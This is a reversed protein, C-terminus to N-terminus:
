GSMAGIVTIVSPTLLSSALRCMWLAVPGSMAGIVTIVSPTLGMSWPAMGYFTLCGVYHGDELLTLLVWSKLAKSFPSEPKDTVVIRFAVYPIDYLSRLMFM